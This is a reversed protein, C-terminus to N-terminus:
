FVIGLWGLDSPRMKSLFFNRLFCNIMQQWWAASHPLVCCCATSVLMLGIRWLLSSLNNKLCTLVVHNDMLRSLDLDDEWISFSSVSNLEISFRIWSYSDNSCPYFDIEIQEWKTKTVNKKLAWKTLEIDASIMNLSVTYIMHNIYDRSNRSESFTLPFYIVEKLFNIESLKDFTWINRCFTKDESARERQWWSPKKRCDTGECSDHSYLRWHCFHGFVDGFNWFQWCCNWPSIFARIRMEKNILSMQNFFSFYNEYFVCNKEIKWDEETLTNGTEMM